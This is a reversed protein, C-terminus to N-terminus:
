LARWRTLRDKPTRRLVRALKLVEEHAAAHSLPPDVVASQDDWRLTSRLATGGALYVDVRYSTGDRTLVFRAGTSPHLDGSSPDLASM